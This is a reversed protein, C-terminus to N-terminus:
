SHLESQRTAEDNKKVRGQVRRHNGDDSHGHVDKGDGADRPVGFDPAHSRGLFELSGSTLPGPDEDLGPRSQGSYDLASHMRTNEGARLIRDLRRRPLCGKERTERERRERSPTWDERNHRHYAGDTNKKYKSIMVSRVPNERWTIPQEERAANELAERLPRIQCAEPIRM